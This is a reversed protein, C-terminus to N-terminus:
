STHGKPLDVHASTRTTPGSRLFTTVVADAHRQVAEDSFADVGVVQEVERHFLYQHTAAGLVLYILTSSDVDPLLGQERGEDFLLRLLEAAPRTYREVMWQHREASSGDAASQIFRFLEPHRAASLVITRLTVELRTALDDGDVLALEIRLDAVASGIAEAAAARWLEEKGGDFYYPVLGPNTGARESIARVTTREFGQEGFLEVAASVIRDRSSVVADVQAGEM